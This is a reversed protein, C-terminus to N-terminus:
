GCGSRRARTASTGFRDSLQLLFAAVREAADCMGLLWVMGQAFTLESAFLSHVLREVWSYERALRALRGFPVVIVASTDLAIVDATYRDIDISDLGIVDGAMPFATVHESGGAGFRVTKFFGARVIYIADFKAGARHLAEGHRAQRVKFAFRALRPDNTASTGLTAALDAFRALARDAPADTAFAPGNPGTPITRVASM